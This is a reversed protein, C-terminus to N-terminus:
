YQQLILYKFGDEEVLIDLQKKTELNQFRHLGPYVGELILEGQPTSVKFPFFPNDSIWTGDIPITINSRNGTKIKYVSLANYIIADMLLKKNISWPDGNSKSLIEEMLRGINLHEIPIDKKLLDLLLEAIFGYEWKLKLCQGPRLDQSIVAGAPKLYGQPYCAIPVSSGKEIDITFDKNWEILANEISGSVEPFVVKGTNKELSWPPPEGPFSVTITQYDTFLECGSFLFIFLFLYKGM